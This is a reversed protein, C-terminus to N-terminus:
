RTRYRFLHISAPPASVALSAIAHPDPSVDYLQWPFRFAAPARVGLIAPADEARLSVDFASLPVRLGIGEGKLIAEKRTWCRLFGPLWEESPLESLTQRELPSFYREVLSPQIKRPEEVDAGLELDSAVALIGFSKSHSLNFRLRLANSGALAPKGGEGAAFALSEPPQGLYGSLIRRMHVHAAAFRLQDPRFRFHRYRLIEGDDLCSVDPEPSEQPDGLRWAWLHVAGAPLTTEAASDQWGTIVTM